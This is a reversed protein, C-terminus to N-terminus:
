WQQGKFFFFHNKAGVVYIKVNMMNRQDIQDAEDCKNFFFNELNQVM